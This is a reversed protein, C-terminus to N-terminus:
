YNHGDTRTLWGYEVRANDLRLRRSPLPTGTPAGGDLNYLDNKHREDQRAVSRLADLWAAVKILWRSVQRCPLLCRENM